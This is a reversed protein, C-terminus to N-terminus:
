DLPKVKEPCYVWLRTAKVNLMPPLLVYGLDNLSMHVHGESNRACIRGALSLSEVRWENGLRARVKKEIVSADLARFEGFPDYVGGTKEILERLKM